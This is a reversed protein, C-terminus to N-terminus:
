LYPAPTRYMHPSGMLGTKFNQQVTNMTVSSDKYLLGGPEVVVAGLLGAM